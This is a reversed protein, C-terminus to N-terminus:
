LDDCELEVLVVVVVWLEVGDGREGMLFVVEGV